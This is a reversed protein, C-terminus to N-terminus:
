CYVLLYIDEKTSTYHRQIYNTKVGLIKLLFVNLITTKVKFFVYLITTRCKIKVNNSLSEKYQLKNEM